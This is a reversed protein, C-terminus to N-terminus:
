EAVLEAKFMEDTMYGNANLWEGVLFGDQNMEYDIVITGDCSRIAGTGSINYDYLTGNYLTTFIYQDPITITGESDVTFTVPVRTQVEEGWVNLIFDENLGEITYGGAGDAVITVAATGQYGIGDFDGDVGGFNGVWSFDCDDDTITVVYPESATLGSSAMAVSITEDGEFVIDKTIDIAFSGNTEGKPIVLSTEPVTYDEGQTATGTFTLTVSVDEVAPEDLQFGLTIPGGSESAAFSTAYFSVTSPKATEDDDCSVVVLSLCALLLFGILHNFKKM